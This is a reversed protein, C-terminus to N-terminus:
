CEKSLRSRLRLGFLSLLNLDKLVIHKKEALQIDGHLATFTDLPTRKERLKKDSNPLSSNGAPVLRFQHFEKFRRLM